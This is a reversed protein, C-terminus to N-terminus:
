HENVQEGRRNNFVRLAYVFTAILFSAHVTVALTFLPLIPSAYIAGIGSVAYLWACTWFKRENSM